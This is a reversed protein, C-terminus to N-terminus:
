TSGPRHTGAHAVVLAVPAPADASPTLMKSLGDYYWSAAVRAARKAVERTGTASSSMYLEVWSGDQHKMDVAFAEGGFLAFCRLRVLGSELDEDGDERMKWEGMKM